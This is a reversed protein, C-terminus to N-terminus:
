RARKYFPRSVIKAGKPQSNVVVEVKSGESLMNSFYGLGVGKRLTPSFSGSTVKGTLKGDTMIDCNARPIGSELEFALLHKPLGKEKQSLLASKGFFDGKWNVYNELGAELPTTKEDLEHGHLPMCAELRLTDRAGLGCPKVGLSIIEGWLKGGFEKSILLEFGDEGTYGTRAVFSL